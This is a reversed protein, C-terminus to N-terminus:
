RKSVNQAAEHWDSMNTWEVEKYMKYVEAASDRSKGISACYEIFETETPIKSNAAKAKGGKSGNKSNTVSENICKVLGQIIMPQMMAFAMQLAENSEIKESDIKGGFNFAYLNKFLVGADEDKMIRLAPEINSYLYFKKRNRLVKIVVSEGYEEVLAQIEDNKLLDEYNSM